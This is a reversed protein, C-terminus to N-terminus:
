ALRDFAMELQKGMEFDIYRDLLVEHGDKFVVRCLALFPGYASTSLGIPGGDNPVNFVRDGWTKGLYFEAYDIEISSDVKEHKLIGM